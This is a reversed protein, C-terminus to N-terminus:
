NPLIRLAARSEDCRRLHMWEELDHVVALEARLHVSGYLHSRETSTKTKARQVINIAKSFGSFSLASAKGMRSHKWMRPNAIVKPVMASTSKRSNPNPSRWFAPSKALATAGHVSNPSIITKTEPGSSNEESGSM